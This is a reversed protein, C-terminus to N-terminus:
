RRKEYLLHPKLPHGDPLKPHDFPGVRVMGLREMLGWSPTNAPTTYALIRDLRLTEFGFQVTEEAAERAFGKGQWRESLKWGIELGPAFPLDAHVPMLGCHGILLGTEREELAWRGWGHEAFHQDIGEIMADSGERTLPTLYRLVAPECNIAFYPERDEARWPRMVLRPTTLTILEAAAELPETAKVRLPKVVIVGSSIRTGTEPARNQKSSGSDSAAPQVAAVEDSTRLTEANEAAGCPAVVLSGPNVGACCINATM